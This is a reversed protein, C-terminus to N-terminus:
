GLTDRGMNYNYWRRKNQKQKLTKNQKLSENWSSTDFKTSVSHWKTVPKDHFCRSVTETIPPPLPSQWVARIRPLASWHRPMPSCALAQRWSPPGAPLRMETCSQINTSWTTIQKNSKMHISLWVRLSLWAMSLFPMWRVLLSRFVVKASSRGPISGPDGYHWGSARVVISVHLLYLLKSRDHKWLKCPM